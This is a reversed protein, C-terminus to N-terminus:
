SLFFRGLGCRGEGRAGLRIGRQLEDLTIDSKASVLEDLLKAHPELLRRRKGGLRGPATSGTARVRQMLKIAASASVDFRRAAERASCGAEVARVLRRRLDPSLPATM